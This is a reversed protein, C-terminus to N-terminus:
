LSSELDPTFYPTFPAPLLSHLARSTRLSLRPFYPTFPAPLLSHFARSTPLSPRPFYPTFPAPLLSHLARSTPLSPAPSPTFPAPLLSHFARSTPLSLRPFYPTFPVPLLSHFARSTRLSFCPPGASVRSTRLARLAGRTQLRSSEREPDRSCFADLRRPRTRAPAATYVLLAGAGLAKRQKRPDQRAARRLVRGALATGATMGAVRDGRGRGRRHGRQAPRAGVAGDDQRRLGGLSSRTESDAAARGDRDQPIEVAIAEVDPAHPRPGNRTITVPAPGSSGRQESRVDRATREPGRAGKVRSGTGKM